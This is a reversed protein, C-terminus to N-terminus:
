QTAKNTTTGKLSLRGEVFKDIDKAKWYVQTDLVEGKYLLEITPVSNLNNPPDDFRFDKLVVKYGMALLAPVEQRKYTVCGRCGPATWVVVTYAKKSARPNPTPNLHDLRQSDCLAQGPTGVAHAEQVDLSDPEPLTSLAQHAVLISAIAYFAAFAHILRKKM